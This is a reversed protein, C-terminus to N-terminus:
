GNTVSNGNSPLWSNTLTFHIHTPDIKDEFTRNSRQTEWIDTLVGQVTSAHHVIFLIGSMVLRIYTFRKLMKMSQKLVWLYDSFYSHRGLLYSMRTLIVMPIFFVLNLFSMLLWSITFLLWVWYFYNIYATLDKSLLIITGIVPGGINVVYFLVNGLFKIAPEDEETSIRFEEFDQDNKRLLMFLLGAIPFLTLYNKISIWLEKLIKM